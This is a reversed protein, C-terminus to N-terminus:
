LFICITFLQLLLMYLIHMRLGIMSINVRGNVPIYMDYFCICVLLFPEPLVAEVNVRTLGETGDNIGWARIDGDFASSIVNGSFKFRSLLFGGSNFHM